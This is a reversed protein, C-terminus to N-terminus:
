APRRTRLHASRGAKKKTAKREMSVRHTFNNYVRYPAPMGTDHLYM